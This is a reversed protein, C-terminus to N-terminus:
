LAELGSSSPSSAETETPDAEEGFWLVAYGGYIGVGIANWERSSWDGQNLMVAKHGESSQWSAFADAASAEYEGPGGFANEFGQGPYGTELRQPANWMCPWTDPEELSYPCDSWGHTVHDLNPELNYELDLVHRNALRTLAPSLPIAPLGSEARYDNIMQYLQNEEDSLGDGNCAEATLIDQGRCDGPQEAVADSPSIELDEAPREGQQSLLREYVSSETLQAEGPRPLLAEALIVGGMSISLVVISRLWTM